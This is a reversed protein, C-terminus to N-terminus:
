ADPFQEDDDDEQAAYLCSQNPQAGCEVCHGSPYRPHRRPDAYGRECPLPEPGLFEDDPNTTKWTDYTV